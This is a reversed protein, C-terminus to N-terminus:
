GPNKSRPVYDLIYRGKRSDLAFNGMGTQWYIKSRAAENSWGEYEVRYLSSFLPARGTGDKCHILVAQYAPNAMTEDMVALFKKMVDDTPVQHSPISFYRVGIEQMAQHEADTWPGPHRLDIVTQIKYERVRDKLEAPPMEASKYVRGDTITMFRYNVHVWYYYGSATVLLIIALVAGLRRWWRKALMM